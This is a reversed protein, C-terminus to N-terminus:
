RPARRRFRWARVAWAPSRLAHVGYAPLLRLSGTATGGYERAIWARKPLVARRAIDLRERASKAQSFAALHLAGRPEESRHAIAWLQAEAPPLGLEDALAAGAPLLRLGAALADVAQVEGALGTAQKWITAPWRSISRDLDGLAKLDDPGHQAAHLALHLALGVRDLAPIRGGALEITMRHRALASWVVDPRAECGELQWHLDIVVNGFGPLFGQWHHGHLIGPLDEAGYAETANTYGLASLVEGARARDARATLLDVDTYGPHEGPRYLMQAVSAGKLLLADVGAAALAESAELALADLASAQTTLRARYRFEELVRDRPGGPTGRQWGAASM